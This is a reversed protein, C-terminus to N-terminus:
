NGLGVLSPKIWGELPRDTSRGQQITERSVMIFGVQYGPQSIPYLWGYQNFCILVRMMTNLDSLERILNKIM